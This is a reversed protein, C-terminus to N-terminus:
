AIGLALFAARKSEYTDVTRIIEKTDISMTVYYCKRTGPFNILAYYYGYKDAIANRCTTLIKM